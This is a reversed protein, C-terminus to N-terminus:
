AGFAGVWGRPFGIFREIHLEVWLVSVEILRFM